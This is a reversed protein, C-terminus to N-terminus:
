NSFASFSSFDAFGGASSAADSAFPDTNAFPDGNVPTQRASTKPPAPRPPPAKVTAASSETALAGGPSSGFPDQPFQVAFNGTAVPGAFPDTQAFPDVHQMSNQVGAFPDPPQQVSQSTSAVSFPHDNFLDKRSIDELLNLKSSLTTSPDASKLVTQLDNVVAEAHAIADHLQARQAEDRQRKREVETIKDVAMEMGKQEHSLQSTLNLREVELQALENRLQMIEQQDAEAHAADKQTDEILQNLRSQAEEAKRAQAHTALELQRIQEDLDALRRGAEMKQRELQKVTSELTRLEVQLNKIQSDKVKMDAELQSVQADAERRDALLKEMEETLKRIEGSDSVTMETSAPNVDVSTQGNESVSLIRLSPPVLFQPLTPPLEEGRKRMNVLHVILAFQEQNLKGTRNIDCLAWIHALEMQPLGSGLLVHKVDNGNVLGDSDSDCAAFQAASALRDVPWELSSNSSSAVSMSLPAVGSRIPTAPASENKALQNPQVSASRNEVPPPRPPHGGIGDLSTLSGTRSFNYGTYNAQGAGFHSPPMSQQGMPGASGFVSSTSTRRSLHMKSPHILSNPLVAPVPENQLARYVLHMAVAMEIRDLQGDKDQDALEWIRALVAPNLGSNLLVPRVKAGPLKGDVPVLSEFISDYKIQDTASICWELGPQSQVSGVPSIPQSASAANKDICGEFRPPQLNSLGISAPSIPYGQQAAAVLKFAIFFGRKDLAGKKQYDALEWIQGLQQVNLNSRKLFVAAEGAAVAASNSPNARVSRSLCCLRRLTLPM